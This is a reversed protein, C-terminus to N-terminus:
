GLHKVAKCVRKKIQPNIDSNQIKDILLTILQNPYSDLLMPLFETTRNEFAELNKEDLEEIVSFYLDLCELEELTLEVNGVDKYEINKSNHRAIREERTEYCIELRATNEKSLKEKKIVEDNHKKVEEEIALNNLNPNGINYLNLIEKADDANVVKGNEFDDIFKEIKKKCKKFPYVCNNLDEIYNVIYGCLTGIIDMSVVKVFSDGSLYFKYIKDVLDNVIKCNGLEKKMSNLTSFYENKRRANEKISIKELNEYLLDAYPIIDNFFKTIILELRPYEENIKEEIIENINEKTLAKKEEVDCMSLFFIKKINKIDKETILIKNPNGQVKKLKRLVTKALESVECSNKFFISFNRYTRKIIEIMDAEFMLSGRAKFKM